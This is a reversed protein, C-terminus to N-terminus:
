VVASPSGGDERAEISPSPREINESSSAEDEADEESPAASAVDEDSAEAPTDGKGVSAVKIRKPRIGTEVFKTAEEISARHFQTRRKQKGNADAPFFIARFKEKDYAWFVNAIGTDVRNADGISNRVHAITKDVGTALQISVVSRLYELVQPSLLMVVGMRPKNLAVTMTMSEVDGVQPAVIEVTSPFKCVKTRMSTSYRRIEPNYNLAELAKSWENDKLQKLTKLIDTKRLAVTASGHLKAYHQTVLLRHLSTNSGVCRFCQGAVGDVDVLPLQVPHKLFEVDVKVVGSTVSFMSM